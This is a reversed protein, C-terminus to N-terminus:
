KEKFLFTLLLFKLDVKKEKGNKEVALIIDVKREGTLGKKSFKSSLALRAGM